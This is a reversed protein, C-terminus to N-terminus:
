TMATKPSFWLITLNLQFIIILLPPQDGTSVWLVWNLGANFCVIGLKVRCLNGMRHTKFCGVIWWTPSVTGKKCFRVVTTNRTHWRFGPFTDILNTTPFAKVSMKKEYFSSKRLVHVPPPPSSILTILTYGNCRWSPVSFFRTTTLKRSIKM